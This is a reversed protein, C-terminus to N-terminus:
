NQLQKYIELEKFQRIFFEKTAHFPINSKATSTEFGALELETDFLKLKCSVNLYKASSDLTWRYFTNYQIDDLSNKLESQIQQKSYLMYLITSYYSTMSSDFYESGFNGFIYPTLIAIAQKVNNLQLYCQSIKYRRPIFDIYYANGCFQLKDRFKTDASDYYTIAKLYDHRSKYYDGVREAAKECFFNKYQDTSDFKNLFSMFYKLTSDNDNKVSYFYEIDNVTQSYSVTTLFLTLITLLQRMQAAYL